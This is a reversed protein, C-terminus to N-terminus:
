GGLSKWYTKFGDYVEPWTLDLAGCLYGAEFEDPKVLGLFSHPFSLDAKLM